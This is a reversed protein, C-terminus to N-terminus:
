EYVEGVFGFFFELVEVVEYFFYLEVVEVDELIRVFFVGDSVFIFVVYGGFDFGFMGVLYYFDLLGNGFGFVLFFYFLGQFDKEVM